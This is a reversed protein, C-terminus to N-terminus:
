QAWGAVSTMNSFWQFVRGSGGNIGMYALLAFLASFIIAPYPLGGRNTRTFIKPANGAAALGDSCCLLEPSRQSYLSESECLARSSTYLDSSAASWASTLLAANIVQWFCLDYTYESLRTCSASPLGKIGARRIAIVFPSAAANGSQLNLDSANSPVLLGIVLPFLMLLNHGCYRMLSWAGLTGGIYFLLIRIYVRKIAQFARNLCCSTARYWPWEGQAFETPSKQGRRCCDLDPLFMLWLWNRRLSSGGSFLFAGCRDRNWHVFVCSPDHCVV